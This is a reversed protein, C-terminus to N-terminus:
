AIFGDLEVFIYIALDFHRHVLHCLNGRLLTERYPDGYFPTQLLSTTASHHHSFIVHSPSTLNNSRYHHCLFISLRLDTVQTHLVFVQCYRSCLQHDWTVDLTLM